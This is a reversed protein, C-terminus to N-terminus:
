KDIRKVKLTFDLMSEVIIREDKQISEDSVANWIEGHVWVKGAEGPMFTNMTKGTKGIMSESGTTVKRKQAKIGFGVILGFFIITVVVVPVIVSYSLRIMDETSDFLMISGIFLSVTGGISLVGYSTVKIELLFLIIAFGILALGAFNIPL